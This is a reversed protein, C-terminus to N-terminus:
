AKDVEVVYIAVGVESYILRLWPLGEARLPGLGRELTGYFVHTAGLSRSLDRMEQGSAEGSYFRRVSQAKQEPAVVAFQHGLLARGASHAAWYSGIGYSSLLVAQEDTQGALWEVARVDAAPLYYPFYHEALAIRLGLLAVLLTSPVTLILVVNRATTLARPSQRMWHRFWRQQAAWPLLGDHLGVAALVCMGVHWGAMLRGQFAFPVYVLLGNGVVWSALLVRPGSWQRERVWHILGWLALCLVLGYGAALAPLGVTPFVLRARYVASWFPDLSLLLYYYVVIPVSPLGVAAARLLARGADRPRQIVRVVTYVILAAAVVIVNYVLTISLLLLSVASTVLYGGRRDASLFFAFCLVELTIGLAFHPSSFVTLFTNAEPIRIDVPVLVTDALRLVVLLWGLGSSFAAMLLANRRAAVGPLTLSCLWYVSALLAMGSALRATHFILENSLGLARAVKGLLPYVPLLLAPDHPEPTSRVSVLWAGDAGDRMYSLYLQNDDNNALFGLFVLDSPSLLYALFYAAGSLVVFLAIWRWGWRVLSWREDM